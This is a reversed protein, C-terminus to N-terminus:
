RAVGEGDRKKPGSKSDPRDIECCRPAEIGIRVNGNRQSDIMRVLITMEKTQPPVKITFDSLDTSPSVKGVIRTLVLM